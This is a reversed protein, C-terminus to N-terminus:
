NAVALLPLSEQHAIARKKTKKGIAREQFNKQRCGQNNRTLYEVVLGISATYRWLTYRTQQSYKRTM